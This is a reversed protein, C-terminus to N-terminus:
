RLGELSAGFSGTAAAFRVDIHPSDFGSSHLIERATAQIATGLEPLSVVTSVDVVPYIEVHLEESLPTRLGPVKGGPLLLALEGYDGSYMGAVGHLSCVADSLKQAVALDLAPPSSPRPSYDAM